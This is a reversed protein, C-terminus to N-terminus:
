FQTVLSYIPVIVSVAMLGVVAGIVVLIAPEVVAMLATLRNTIEKEYFLALDSLVDPLRGSREGVTILNKVVSPYGKERKFAAGLTVGQAIAQSIRLLGSSIEPDPVSSAVIELSKTIPLGGKILSALLDTFRQIAISRLLTNIFPLKSVGRMILARGEKIKLATVFSVGFIVVIIVLPLMFRHIFLGSSIVIQSFLPLKLGADILIGAILPIVFGGIGFIIVIALFVLASPYIMATKLKKNFDRSREWSSSLDTFVKELNGSEEGAKILNIEAVSFSHSYHEFVTHVAEGREVTRRFDSLFKKTIAKDADDRLIDIAAMIDLGLRMMLALYRALFIKDDDSISEGLINRFFQARKKLPKISTARLGSRALYNMVESPTNLDIEGEKTEGDQTTARYRFLM